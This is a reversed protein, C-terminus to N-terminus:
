PPLQSKGAAPRPVLPPMPLVHLRVLLGAELDEAGLLGLPQLLDDELLAAAIDQGVGVHRVGKLELRFLSVADAPDLLIGVLLGKTHLEPAKEVPILSFAGFVEPLAHAVAQKRHEGLFLLALPLLHRALRELAVESETRRRRVHRRPLASGCPAAGATSFPALASRRAAGWRRPRGAHPTAKVQFPRIIFR